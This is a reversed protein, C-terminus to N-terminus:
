GRLIQFSSYAKVDGESVGIEDVKAMPPGQKCWNTFHDLASTKGEAEIVVSGDKENRVTGHIRLKKATELTSARFFVGQVRGRVVIDIHKIGL